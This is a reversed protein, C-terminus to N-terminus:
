GALAKGMEFAKNLDLPFVEERRKKREAVNFRNMEYKSYDSVQWTETCLLSQAPGLIRSFLAEYAKFKAPYGTEEFRSSAANMTFILATNIRRKFFPASDSNYSLYQFFLREIFARSSATIEHFYIPSGFILGDCSDIKDLVPRLNDKVACRGLSPGGTRKCEMCSICGRFSLEYLNIIETKAGSSAAGRVAEEILMHTNWGKRPSGNIAIINM